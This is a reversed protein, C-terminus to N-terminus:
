FKVGLFVLPPFYFFPAEREEQKFSEPKNSAYLGFGFPWQVNVYLPIERVKFDFLYGARFENWIDFSEYYRDENKEYFWDYSPWIEYEVHLNKWLYRRYGLILGPSHTEGCDFPINMYALGTLLEDKPTLKYSYHGGYIPILGSLPCLDIAHRRFAPSDDIPAATRQSAQALATLGVVLMVVSGTAKWTMM